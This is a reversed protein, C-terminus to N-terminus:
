LRGCPRRFPCRRCAERQEHRPFADEVAANRAPDVLAARMAAISDRMATRCGELSAPDASVSVREAGGGGVLYILGGTVAEPPVSWKQQAYLSYIGVQTHDVGREKGTKWDLVQVRGEPDRYAFDIAM